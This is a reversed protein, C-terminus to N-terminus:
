VQPPLHSPRHTPLTPDIKITLPLHPPQDPSRERLPRSLIPDPFSLCTLVPTLLSIIIRHSVQPITQSSSTSTSKNDTADALSSSIIVPPQLLLPVFLNTNTRRHDRAMRPSDLIWTWPFGQSFWSIWCLFCFLWTVLVPLILFRLPTPSVPSDPELLLSSLQCYM